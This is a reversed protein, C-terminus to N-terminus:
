ARVEQRLFLVYAIAFLLVTLATLAVLQPWVLLISQDLTLLSPIQEQGATAQGVSSVVIAKVRPDMVATLVDTYLQSPNLRLLLQQSTAAGYAAQVSGNTDIPFLFNALAPLVIGGIMTVALWTGFGVLAATATSRLVTSLLLAFALWFSAYLVTAIFWVGIRALDEAQPIIGLALIGIATVLLVLAALMVTLVFIGAAFKGNIVDDRHVPQALLRSLTGQSRESNIGDFGFAIGVLPVLLTVLTVMAFGGFTSAGHTFLALFALPNGSAASAQTQIDVGSFYMPLISLVAIVLLLVFFRSSAIHDALEKAAITRWGGSPAKETRRAEARTKRAPAGASETPAAM